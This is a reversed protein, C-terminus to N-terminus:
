VLDRIGRVINGGVALAFRVCLFLIVATINWLVIVIVRDSWDDTERVRRLDDRWRPFMEICWWIGVALLIAQVLM